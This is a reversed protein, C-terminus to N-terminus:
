HYDKVGLIKIATVQSLDIGGDERRPIPRHNVSFFLRYPQVLDVAFQEDRNQTLQHCREPPITPVRNLNEAHELVTMRMSIARFMRTNYKKKLEKESNFCKELKTSAFAIEM